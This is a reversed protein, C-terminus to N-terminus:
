DFLGAFENPMASAVSSTSTHKNRSQEAEAAVRQAVEALLADARKEVHDDPVVGSEAVVPEEEVRKRKTQQERHERHEAAIRKFHKYNLKFACEKCVRVKVLAVKDEEAEVYRFEVEYSKLSNTNNCEVNACVFQGKGAFVEAETRWRLGIRSKRFKSLDALCFEKFLMDYYRRALRKEYTSDDNDTESRLFRHAERLVDADTRDRSADRQPKHGYYKVYDAILLQHREFASPGTPAAAGTMISKKFSM